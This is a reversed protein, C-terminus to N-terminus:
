VSRNVLTSVIIFLVIVLVMSLIAVRIINEGAGLGLAKLGSDFMSQFIDFSKITVKLATYGDNFLDGLIDLTQSIPNKDEADTAVNERVDQTLNNLEGLKSIVDPSENDSYSVGYNVSLDSMLLAAIAVTASVLIMGVVFTSIKPDAM